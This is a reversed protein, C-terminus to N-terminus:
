GNNLGTEAAIVAIGRQPNLDVSIVNFITGAADILRHKPTVKRADSYNAWFELTQKEREIGAALVEAGGNYKRGLWIVGADAFSEVQQGNAADTTVVRTQIRMRNNLEGARM